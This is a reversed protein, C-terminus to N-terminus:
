LNLKQTQESEFMRSEKRTDVLGKRSNRKYNLISFVSGAMSAFFSMYIGFGIDARNDILSYKMYAFIALAIVLCNVIFVAPYIVYTPALFKPLKVRYFPIVMLLVCFLASFFVTYGHASLLGNFANISEETYNIYNQSVLWPFLCSLVLTMSSILIVKEEIELELFARKFKKM